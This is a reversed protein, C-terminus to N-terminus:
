NEEKVNCKKHDKAIILHSEIVELHIDHFKPHDICYYFPHNHVIRPDPPM